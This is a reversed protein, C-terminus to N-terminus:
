KAFRSQRVPTRAPARSAGGRTATAQRGNGGTRTTPTAKAKQIKTKGKWAKEWEEIFKPEEAEAEWELLSFGEENFVRDITNSTVPDASADEVWKGDVKKSAPKQIKLLGVNFNLGAMEPYQETKVNTEKGDVTKKVFFDETELEGLGAEGNTAFIALADILLWGSNTYKKGDKKSEYFNEGDSNTVYITDNYRTAHEPNNEDLFLNLELTVGMSGTDAQVGFMRIIEAPYVGSEHVKFGGVTDKAAETQTQKVNKFLSM